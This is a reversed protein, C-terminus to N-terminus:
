YKELERDWCIATLIAVHEGTCKGVDESPKNSFVTADVFTDGKVNYWNDVCAPIHKTIEWEKLGLTYLKIHSSSPDNRWRAVFYAQRAMRRAFQASGGTASPEERKRKRQQPEERPSPQEERVRVSAQPASSASAYGENWEDNMGVSPQRGENRGREKMEDEVRLSPQWLKSKLSREKRRKGDLKRLRLTIEFDNAQTERDDFRHGGGVPAPSFLPSPSRTSLRSILSSEDDSDGSCAVMPCANKHPQASREPWGYQGWSNQLSSSSLWSSSPLSGTEVPPPQAGARHANSYENSSMQSSGRSWEPDVPPPQM